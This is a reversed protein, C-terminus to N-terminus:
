TQYSNLLGKIILIWGDSVVFLLIKLPLSIMVPSVMFMGLGVLINAVVIDIVLFPVLITFAMAFGEKLETLLFALLNIQWEPKIGQNEGSTIQILAEIERQGAHREIFDLFPQLAEGAQVLSHPSLEERVLEWKVGAARQLSEQMVPSMCYGTIALSLAMVVLGSPIQQAGLANRLIGLVISVKLYSTFLGLFIPILAVAISLIVLWIPNYGNV